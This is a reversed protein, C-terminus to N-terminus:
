VPGGPERMSVPPGLLEQLIVARRLQSRGGALQRKVARVDASEPADGPPLEAPARSSPDTGYGAHSLHIAHDPRSGVEAGTGVETRRIPTRTPFSSPVPQPSPERGQALRAIEEWVDSPVRNAARGPEKGGYPEVYERRPSGPVSPDDYADDYSPDADYSSVEGRPRPAPDNHEAPTWDDPLEIPGGQQQKRKRVLGDLLSFFIILGFFILEEM